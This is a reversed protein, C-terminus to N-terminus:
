DRVRRNYEAREQILTEHLQAQSKLLFIQHKMVTGVLLSILFLALLVEILSNGRTLNHPPFRFM